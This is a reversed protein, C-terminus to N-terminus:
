KPKGVMRFNALGTLVLANRLVLIALRHPHNHTESGRLKALWIHARFSRFISFGFRSQKNKMTYKSQNLIRLKLFMRM